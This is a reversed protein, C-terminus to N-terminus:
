RGVRGAAAHCGPEKCLARSHVACKCPSACPVAAAPKVRVACYVGPHTPLRNHQGGQLCFAHLLYDITSVVRCASLMKKAGSCATTYRHPTQM